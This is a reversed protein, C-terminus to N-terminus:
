KGMADNGISEADCEREDHEYKGVAYDQEANAAPGAMIADYRLRDRPAKSFAGKAACVVAPPLAIGPKDATIIGRAVQRDNRM